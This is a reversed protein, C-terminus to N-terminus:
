VYVCTVPSKCTHARFFSLIEHCLCNRERRQINFAYLSDNTVKRTIIERSVLVARGADNCKRIYSFWLAYTFRYPTEFLRYLKETLPYRLCSLETSYIIGIHVLLLPSVTIIICILWIYLSYMLLILFVQKQSTNAKSTLILVHVARAVFVSINIVVFNNFQLSFIFCYFPLCRSHPSRDCAVICAFYTFRSM